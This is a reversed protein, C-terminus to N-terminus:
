TDSNPDISTKRTISTAHLLHTSSLRQSCVPCTGKAKVYELMHTRHGQARCAPCLAVQEGPYVWYSCVACRQATEFTFSRPVDSATFSKGCSWCSTQDSNNWKGCSCVIVDLQHKSPQWPRQAQQKRVPKQYTRTPSPVAPSHQPPRTHERSKDCAGACALCVLLLIIDIFLWEFV